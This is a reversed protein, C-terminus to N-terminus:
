EPQLLEPRRVRPARIRPMANPDISESRLYAALAKRMLEGKSIDKELCFLDANKSLIRPLVITTREVSSGGSKTSNPVVRRM